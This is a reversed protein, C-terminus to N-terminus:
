RLTDRLPFLGSDSHLEPEATQTMTTIPGAAESGPAQPTIQNCALGNLRWPFLARPVRLVCVCVVQCM